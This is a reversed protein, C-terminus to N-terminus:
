LWAKGTLQESLTWLAAATRENRAARRCGVRRPAGRIQQFGDPGYYEGGGAQPATAAYLTPLAGSAASQGILRNGLQMVARGLASNEMAPGVLQLNTSSYGPHAALARVGHGAAVLRRQLEFTFLLNALKSKGYADWKNYRSREFNLDALNLGLTWRHALSAVNVV